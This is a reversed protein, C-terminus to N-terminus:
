PSGLEREKKDNAAKIAHAKEQAEALAAASLVRSPDLGMAEYEAIVQDATKGHLATRLAAEGAAPNDRAALMARMAHVQFAEDFKAAVDPALPKKVAAMSREISEESSLDLTAPAPTCGVILLCLLM